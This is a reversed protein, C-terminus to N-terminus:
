RRRAYDLDIMKMGRMALTADAQGQSFANGVTARIESQVKTSAADCAAYIIGAAAVLITLTKIIKVNRKVARDRALLATGNM